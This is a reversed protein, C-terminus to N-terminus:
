KSIDLFAGFVWGETRDWLRVQYWVGKQGGITEPKDTQGIIRVPTGKNLKTVVAAKTNSEERLNVSDDNITGGRGNYDLKLEPYPGIRYLRTEGAKYDGRLQYIYGDPTPFMNSYYLDDELPQPSVWKQLREGTNDVTNYSGMDAFFYVDNAMKVRVNSLGVTNVWNGKGQFWNQFSAVDGILPVGHDLILNGKVQYRTNKPDALLKRVGADDLYDQKVDETTALGRIGFFSAPPSGYSGAENQFILVDKYQLLFTSDTDGNGYVTAVETSLRKFPETGQDFWALGYKGRGSFSWSWQLLGGNLTSLEYGWNTGWKLIAVKNWAKDFVVTRAKLPDGVWWRVGDSTISDPAEPDGGSHHTLSFESGLDKYFEFEKTQSEQGFLSMPVSLLLVWAVKKM